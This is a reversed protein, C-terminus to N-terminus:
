PLYKSRIGDWAVGHGHVLQAEAAWVAQWDEEGLSDVPAAEGGSEVTLHALRFTALVAEAQAEPNLPARRLTEAILAHLRRNEM